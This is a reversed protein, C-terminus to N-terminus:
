DRDVYPTQESPPRGLWVGRVRKRKAIASLCGSTDLLLAGKGYNNSELDLKTEGQFTSSANGTRVMKEKQDSLCYYFAALWKEIATLQSSSLARDKNIACAEVADTLLSAAEIFPELSPENDLDYDGGPALVAKVAAENTRVAM